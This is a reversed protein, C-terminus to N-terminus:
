PVISYAIYSCVFWFISFYYIIVRNYLVNLLIVFHRGVNLLLFLYFPAWGQVTIIFLIAGVKLLLFLYFPAWCKVTFYFFRRGVHHLLFLYFPAWGQVTIIFLIAGLRSCYFYIFHRGVSLRLFLFIANLMICHFHIFHRGVSFLLFLYFPAWCQVNCIFLIAGLRSCYGATSSPTSIVLCVTVMSACNDTSYRRRPWTARRVMTVETAMGRPPIQYTSLGCVPNTTIWPSGPGTSRAPFTSKFSPKLLAHPTEPPPHRPLSGSTTVTDKLSVTWLTLTSRSRQWSLISRLGVSWRCFVVVSSYLLRKIFCLQRAKLSYVPSWWSGYM